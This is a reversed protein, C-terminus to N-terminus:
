AAKKTKEKIHYIAMYVASPSIGLRDAIEWPEYGQIRLEYVQLEREGLASRIQEDTEDRQLEDDAASNNWHVSLSSDDPYEEYDDEDRFGDFSVIIGRRRAKARAAGLVENKASVAVWAEFRGKAPDYSDISELLHTVADGAIDELEEKYFFDKFRWNAYAAVAQRATDQLINADFDKM